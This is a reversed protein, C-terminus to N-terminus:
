AWTHRFRCVRGGYPPGEDLGIDFGFLLRTMALSVHMIDQMDPYDTGGTLYGPYEGRYLRVVDDFAQDLAAPQPRGHLARYIRTIELKVCVPDTMNIRNTVDFENRRFNM